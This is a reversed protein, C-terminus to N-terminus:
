KRADIAWVGIPGFRSSDCDGVGADDAILLVCGRPVLITVTEKPDNGPSSILSSPVPVEQGPLGKIRSMFEKRHRPAVEGYYSYRVIQGEELGEKGSGLKMIVHDENNVAPSMEGGTGKKLGYNTVGWLIAWIIIFGVFAKWTRDILEKVAAGDM